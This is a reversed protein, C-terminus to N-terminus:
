LKPQPQEISGLEMSAKPDNHRGVLFKGPQANLGAKSAIPKRDAM